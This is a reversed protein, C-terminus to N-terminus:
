STGFRSVVASALRGAEDLSRDIVLRANPTCSRYIAQYDRFGRNYAGALIDRTSSGGTEAAILATMKARWIEPNQQGCLDTLYALTGLLEALRLLQAQYPPAVTGPSPAPTPLPPPPNRPAAAAPCLMLLALAVALPQRM